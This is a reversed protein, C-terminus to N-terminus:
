ANIAEIELYKEFKKVKPGTGLWGKKLSEVVEDIEDNQIQPQGFTLFKERKKFSNSTKM